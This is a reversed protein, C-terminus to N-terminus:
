QPTLHPSPHRQRHDLARLAGVQQVFAVRDDLVRTSAGPRREREDAARLTVAAQDHHRIAERLLAELQRAGEARLEVDDLGDLATWADSWLVDLVHNLPRALKGAEPAVGRRIMEVRGIRHRVVALVERLLDPLLGAAADRSEAMAEARGARQHADGFRQLRPADEDLRVLRCARRRDGGSRGS